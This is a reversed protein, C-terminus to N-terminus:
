YEIINLSPYGNFNPYGCIASRYKEVTGSPVKVTNDIKDDKFFGFMGAYDQEFMNFFIKFTPINLSRFIVTVKPCAYFSSSGIQAVGKGIICTELNTCGAFVGDDLVIVNDPIEISKLKECNSFAYFNIDTTIGKPIIVKELSKCYAFAEQGITATDKSIIVDSLNECYFFARYGIYGVNSLTASKLNTCYSFVGQGTFNESGIDTVNESISVDVLNECHEFASEGINGTNFLSVTKLGTCYRFAGEGINTINELIILDTLTTCWSFAERGISGKVSSFPFKILSRCNSFAYEGIDMIGEPIVVKELLFCGAFASDPLNGTIGDCIEVTKVCTTGLGANMSGMGNIVLLDIVPGCTFYGDISIASSEKRLYDYLAGIANVDITIKKIYSNSDPLLANYGINKVSAPITFERLNTCRTAFGRDINTVGDEFTVSELNTCNYFVSWWSSKVSAPVVFSKLGTCSFAYSGISTVTAPIDIRALSKCDFFAYDEINEVGYPIEINFLSWCNTFTDERIEKISKPLVVTDLNTCSGFVGIGMYVVNDPVVMTELQECYYFARNGISTVTPSIEIATINTCGEFASDGIGIVGDPIKIVGEASRDCVVVIGDVITLPWNADTKEDSDPSNVEKDFIVNINDVPVGLGDWQEKTGDFVIELSEDCGSFANAGITTVTGPIWIRTIGTCNSFAGDAIGTVGTPIKVYGIIEFACGKVVNDEVVLFHQIEDNGGFQEDSSPNECPYDDLIDNEDSANFCGAFCIILFIM